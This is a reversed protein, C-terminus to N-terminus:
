ATAAKEKAEDLAKLHQYVAQTTIHLALAIERRSLGQEHLERVRERKSERKGAM